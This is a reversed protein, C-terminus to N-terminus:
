ASRACSPPASRPASAATSRACASCSASTRACQQWRACSYQTCASKRCNCRAALSSANCAAHAQGLGERQACLRPCLQACRLLRLGSCRSRQIRAAGGGGGRSRTHLRHRPVHRQKECRRRARADARLVDYRRQQGGGGQRRCALARVAAAVCAVVVRAGEKRKTTVPASAAALCARESACAHSPPTHLKCSCHCIIHLPPIFCPVIVSSWVCTHTILQKCRRHSGSCVHM